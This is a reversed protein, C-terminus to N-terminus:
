NLNITPQWDTPLENVQEMNDIPEYNRPRTCKLIAYLDKTPHKIPNAWNDGQRYGEATTVQLDYNICQKIAGILWM